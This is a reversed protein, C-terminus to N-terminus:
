GGSRDTGGTSHPPAIRALYSTRPRTNAEELLDYDRSGAKRHTVAADRDAIDGFVIAEAPCAQQCATVVDGDRLPRGARKAAIRAASIRQVCYTCKEMVGRGRVTVEPNRVARTEPPDAATYDFWNFRRVKYPCYSSCTRTGICRNYVQLNLGDDSHVTANVPCGMECPAQECHMCPVPQFHSRPAAADGELYHDVRLWHMARGEAVLDKGVVPVNNEAVCAVVCANCGICLDLDISMGWAPSDRRREAYFSPAPARRRGADGDPAAVTRVFDFGDMAQERQTVAVVQRRGTKELRAGGVWAPRDAPWLAFADYGLDQALRGARRGCGLTLAVTRDDQGPVIWAAGLLARGGLELRVEDGAAIGATAAFAPGLGVVNGWTVKSLPKPTEQLWANEAFRGDWLTPDPAVTLLLGDAATEAPLATAAPEPVTAEVAASDAVFGALLAARWRADFGDGWAARWTAQVLDRDSAAFDGTLAAVVAHQPWGGHLPRLLPQIITATGDAARADSWSELEHALPLHWGALAATEDVHQGAHLLFPVSAAAEAFGLAAPAAYAPNCGLVALTTVRGAAMDAVLADFPRPAPGAPPPRFRLTAGLAGIQGNIRLVLAHVDAPHRAGATVLGAGRHAALATAARDLWGAEDDSLPGAAVDLGLRAALARALTALRNPATVLRDAAVSGTASPVPEAVFLRSAGDGRQFAQRRRSWGRAHVAQLPGPGLLDDDLSVIVAARDLRLEADLPRGFARGAAARRNDDDLPELIHWAAAPWRRLLADIQRALTPSTTASTLLRFGAGGLRDLRAAEAHLATEVEARSVPTGRRRPTASRGPDYLDLLAAQLFPDTAGGSAPHDANGELKVPRGAYTKGLAPQAIGALTVATAYWRAVGPTEGDPVTVYPLAREDAVAEGGGLGALALSAAMTKLLARRDVAPAAAAIDAVAPRTDDM